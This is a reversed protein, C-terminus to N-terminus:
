TVRVEEQAFANALAQAYLFVFRRWAAADGVNLTAAQDTTLALGPEREVRREHLPYTIVTEAIVFPLYARGSEVARRQLAAIVELVEEKEQVSGTYGERLGLTIQARLGSQCDM